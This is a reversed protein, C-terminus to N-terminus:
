SYPNDDSANCNCEGRAVRLLGLSAVSKVGPPQYVVGNEPNTEIQGIVEGLERDQKM